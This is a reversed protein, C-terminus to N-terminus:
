RWDGCRASIARAPTAIGSEATDVQYGEDRLIGALSSRVGEEDDVVLIRARPM